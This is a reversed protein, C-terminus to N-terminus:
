PGIFYNAGTSAAYETHNDCEVSPGAEGPSPGRVWCPARRTLTVARCVGAVLGLWSRGSSLVRGICSEPEIGREGPSGACMICVDASEVM